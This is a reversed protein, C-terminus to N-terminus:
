TRPPPTPPPPAGPLGACGDVRPAASTSPQERDERPLGRVYETRGATPCQCERPGRGPASDPARGTSSNRVVHCFGIADLQDFCWGSIVPPRVGPLERRWRACCTSMWRTPTACPITVGTAISNSSASWARTSATSTSPPRTSSSTTRRDLPRRGSRAPVSRWAGLEVLELRIRGSLATYADNVAGSRRCPRGSPTGPPVPRPRGPGGRVRGLAGAVRGGGHLIRRGSPPPPRRHGLDRRVVTRRRAIRLRHREFASASGPPDSSGAPCKGVRTRREARRDRSEERRRREATARYEALQPQTM